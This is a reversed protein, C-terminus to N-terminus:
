RQHPKVQKLMKTALPSLHPIAQNELTKRTTQKPPHGSDTIPTRFHVTKKKRSVLPYRRIEFSTPSSRYAL